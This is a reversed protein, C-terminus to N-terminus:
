ASRKAKSLFMAFLARTQESASETLAELQQELGAGQGFSTREFAMSWPGFEAEDIEEAFICTVETHRQDKAVKQYLRRVVDEPGELAQVFHSGTFLLAGTIGNKPNNERSQILIYSCDDDEFLSTPKSHYVLQFM